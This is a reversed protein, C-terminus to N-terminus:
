TIKQFNTADKVIDELDLKNNHGGWCTDLRQFGHSEGCELFHRGENFRILFTECPKRPTGLFELNAYDINLSGIYPHVYIRVHTRVYM